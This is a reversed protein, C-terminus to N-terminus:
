AGEKKTRPDVWDKRLPYGKNGWSDPLLIRRMDPHNKVQIGMIDNLEREYLIAGPLIPTLSEVSPDKRPLFVRLTVLKEGAVIHYLVEFNEGSDLVTITTIHYGDFETKLIKVTELLSDRPVEVFIRSHKDEAVSKAIGHLRSTLQAVLGEAM